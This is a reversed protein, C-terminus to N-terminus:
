FPAADIQLVAPLSTITIQKGQLAAPQGNLRAAGPTGAWPWNYIVGGPPMRRMAEIRLTLRGGQAALTYSLPGYPTRLGHLGIGDGQLWTNPIGEGLLLAHDSEREYAFSDLAARIYDSSIWGHPMDGLFRPQRADRGVVEAWQNWAAPRQDAYFYDLLEAARERWGLRIFASVNRLEYPTYDEWAKSGDRRAAFFDWYKEYTARLMAPPLQQQEGGPTLAITSSTPDFDGLEAAGPMYDVKHTVTSAALSAYLDHRFEDRQASLRRAATDDGLIAAMDAADKYGRLAWFDDWYSHMPKESYGEHSISAPMLGFLSRREATRNADTRESQRLSEMYRAAADMRPWAASLAAKDQTYRYLEAALFILQGHSDNEPVPDAGRRDVCCPVKGSDFQYPAYWRLYDAVIEPQGLRLLAESMMAGDRIWSRRYSRTGPQLAAGERTMLIHALSSRLTDAMHQGAPPMRLTVQNLRVRWENAVKEQERTLWDACAGEPAHAEVGGAMPLVAGLVVSGHPPLAIEYTLAASAMGIDDHATREVATRAIASPARPLLGADFSALAVSAPRELPYVKADGNVALAKGDWALDNIASFGGPTNLFQRPANVQFPRVALVLKLKRSTGSLNKLEYRALLQSSAPTGTAAATVDLTWSPHRWRVTPVPLYGDRLSQTVKVDAWSVLKGGDEVFPEVSFGGQRAEIAGDESILASHDGGGDVGVLTWYPQQGSFGRPYLGRQAGQAVASIFDNPTAGYALDKLEVEALAYSAAPGDHLAIRIYRAESEPLRLPDDGGNGDVVRRVTRWNSGDTSLEIDYRRAYRRGQWHLALGGFEREAGLDIVLRQQKGAASIWATAPNGDLALAAGGHAAASSAQATAQPWTKPTPPLERIALQRIYVSGSGGGSGASVVFEIRDAHKLTHDKAPGWAFLIQRKKVRVLQWQKPFAYNQQQFWWVNDGSADTLKFEFHNVPADARIYFSIEYNEPLDLPLSRRAFAYGGRGAFDFDLRLGGDAASARSQVGDSAQAQWLAVNSFDDLVGAHAAVTIWFAALLTFLRKM